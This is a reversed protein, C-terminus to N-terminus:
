EQAFVTEGSGIQLILCQLFSFEEITSKTAIPLQMYIQYFNITLSGRKKKHLQMIVLEKNLIVTSLSIYM